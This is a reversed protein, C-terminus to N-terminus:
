RGSYWRWRRAENSSSGEGSKANTIERVGAGMAVGAGDIGGGGVGIVPQMTRSSLSSLPTYVGAWM